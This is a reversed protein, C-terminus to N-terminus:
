PSIFFSSYSNNSVVKEACRSSYLANISFRLSNSLTSSFPASFARSIATGINAFIRLVTPTVPARYCVNQQPSTKTCRRKLSLTTRLIVGYRYTSYPNESREVLGQVERFILCPLNVVRIDTYHEIQTMKPLPHSTGFYYREM